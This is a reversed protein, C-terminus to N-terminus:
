MILDLGTNRATAKEIRKLGRQVPLPLDKHRGISRLRINQRMFEEEKEELTRALLDMLGLVESAPGKWNEVSFAYLTLYRVGCEMAGKVAEGVAKLGEQHGQLRPAAHNAAWRGNGDMIIAVHKLPEAQYPIAESM